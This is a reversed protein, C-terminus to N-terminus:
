RAHQRLRLVPLVYRRVPPAVYADVFRTFRPPPEADGNLHQGARAFRAALQPARRVGRGQMGLVVVGTIGGAVGLIILMSLVISTM